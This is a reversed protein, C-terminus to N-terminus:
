RRRRARNVAFALAGTALAVLGASPAQSGRGIGCGGGEASSLPALAAPQYADPAAPSPADTALAPPPASAGPTSPAVDGGPPAVVGLDGDAVDDSAPEGSVGADPSSSPVPEPEAVIRPPPLAPADTRFPSAPLPPTSAAFLSATPFGAWAYRVTEPTQVSPSSVVVTSDPDIRAAAASYAGDAGAIEFGTGVGGRFTLGSETHKFFLRVANGELAMHDYIPGSYTLEQGYTIAQAALGLRLGLDQKDGYHVNTAEGLDITVALGTNPVIQTAQLQAERLVPWGGSSVNYNALQTILFTFDQGWAERWSDIIGVQLDRYTAAGWTVSEGQAWLVGRIAYPIVPNIQGNYCVYPNHQDRFNPANAEFPEIRAAVSPIKLIADRSMWCQITSAGFSGHIIGIAINPLSEHLQRAFFYGAASFNPVTAPSSVLWETDANESPTASPAFPINSTRILPYDAAAIEAAANNLACGAFTCTVRYDMNSQGSALWVEGVYVDNVTVSSAGAVSMTYPGGAPQAALRVMWKGNADTTAEGEQSGLRVSVVEGAAATGWIPVQLDRQVVMHDSFLSPLTVAAAASSTAGVGALIAVGSTLVHRRCKSSIRELLM